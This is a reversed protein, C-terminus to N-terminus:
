PKQFENYVYFRATLPNLLLSIQKLQDHASSSNDIMNIIVKQCEGEPMIFFWVRAANKNGSYRAIEDYGEIFFQKIEIFTPISCHTSAGGAKTSVYEVNGQADKKDTARELSVTRNSLDFLVKHISHTVVAQQWGTQVISDVTSLFQKRKYSPMLKGINPLAVAAVIAIIALGIVLEILTLGSKNLSGVRQDM